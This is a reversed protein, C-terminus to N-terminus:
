LVGVNKKVRYKESLCAQCRRSGDRNLTITHGVEACRQIASAKVKNGRRTNVKRTVLDLHDPNVCLKVRCVHDPELGDPIPGVLLRYAFVHALQPGGTAARGGYSFQGYGATTPPSTWLWCIGSADVKSWFRLWDSEFCDMATGSVLVKSGRGTSSPLVKRAYSLSGKKGSM